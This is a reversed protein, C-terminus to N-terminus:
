AKPSLVKRKLLQKQVLKDLPLTQWLQWASIPSLILGNMSFRPKLILKWNQKWITEHTTLSQRRDLFENERTYDFQLVILM